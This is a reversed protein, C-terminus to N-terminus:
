FRSIADQVTKMLEDTTPPNAVGIQTAQYPLGSMGALSAMAGTPGFGPAYQTGAPLRQGLTDMYSQNAMSAVQAGIQAAMERRQQELMAQQYAAQQALSQQRYANDAAVQAQQAEWQQMQWPSPNGTLQNYYARTIDGYVGQEGMYDQINQPSIAGSPALGGLVGSLVDREIQQQQMSQRIQEAQALAQENYGTDASATASLGALGSQGIQSIAAAREVPDTIGALWPYQTTLVVENYADQQAQADTQQGVVPLGNIGTQGTNGTDPAQTGLTSSPQASQELARQFASKMDDPLSYRGGGTLSALVEDSLQYKSSTVASDDGSAIAEAQKAGLAAAWDVTPVPQYAASTLADLEAQLTAVRANLTEYQERQAAGRLTPLGGSVALMANRERTAQALQTQLREVKEQFAGLESQTATGLM